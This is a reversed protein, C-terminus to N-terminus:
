LWPPKTAPFQASMRIESTSLALIQYQVDPMISYNESIPLPFQHIKMLRLFSGAPVLPIHLLLTVITADFIYPLELQLLDSPKTIFLDSNTNQAARM